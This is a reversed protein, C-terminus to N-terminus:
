FRFYCILIKTRLKGMLIITGDKKKKKHKEVELHNTKKSSECNAIFIKM